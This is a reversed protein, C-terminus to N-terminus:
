APVPFTSVLKGGISVCGFLFGVIIPCLQVFLISQPIGDNALAFSYPIPNV